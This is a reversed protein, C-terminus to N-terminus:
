FGRMLCNVLRSDAMADSDALWTSGDGTCLANMIPPADSYLSVRRSGGVDAENTSRIRRVRMRDGDNSPQSTNMGSKSCPSNPSPCLGQLLADYPSNLSHTPTSTGSPTCSSFPTLYSNWIHVRHITLHYTHGGDKDM